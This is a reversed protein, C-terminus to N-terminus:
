IVGYFKTDIKVGKFTTYDESNKCIYKQISEATIASSNWRSESTRSVPQDAKPESNIGIMNRQGTPTIQNGLDNLYSWYICGMLYKRIGKSIWQDNCGYDSWDWFSGFRESYFWSCCEDNDECFPEIIFTLLPDVPDLGGLLPQGKLTTALASGVLQCLYIDEYEEIYADIENHKGQPLDYYGSFESSDLIAM